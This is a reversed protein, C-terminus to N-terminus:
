ALFLGPFFYYQTGSRLNRRHRDPRKGEVRAAELFEDLCRHRQVADFAFPTLARRNQRNFGKPMLSTPWGSNVELATRYQM